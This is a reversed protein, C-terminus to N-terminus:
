SEIQLNEQLFKQLNFGGGIAVLKLEGLNAFNGYLERYDFFAGARKPGLGKLGKINDLSGNMKSLLEDEVSREICESMVPSLETSKFDRLPAPSVSNLADAAADDMKANTILDVAQFPTASPLSHQLLRNLHKECMERVIPSLLQRFCTQMYAEVSAMTMTTNASDGGRQTARVAPKGLLASTSHCRSWPEKKAAELPKEQRKHIRAYRTRKAPVSEVVSLERKRSRGRNPPSISVHSPQDKWGVSPVNTVKRSASACNLTSYTQQFISMLPSITCIMATHNDGGLSDKFLRTLKADRYPIRSQKNKLAHILKSLAFLSQNIATSEAFQVGRNGTKRNDENGSLDILSLKGVQNTNEAHYTMSSAAAPRKRRKRANIKVVQVQVCAHSRSSVENMGTSSVVRRKLGEQYFTEFDEYTQCVKQTLGTVVMAGNGDERMPLGALQSSKDLLDRVKERYIEFFSLHLEFLDEEQYVEQLTFLEHVSLQVIGPQANNGHMTYTKGTGSCGYAFFTSSLGREFLNALSDKVQEDFIDETTESENYVRDFEYCKDTGKHRPDKLIVARGGPAVRVVGNPCEEGVPRIRVCVRVNEASM